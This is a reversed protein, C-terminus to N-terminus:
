GPLELGLWRHWFFFFFFFLGCFGLSDRMTNAAACGKYTVHEPNGDNCTAIILPIWSDCSIKEQQPV